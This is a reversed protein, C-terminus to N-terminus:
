QLDPKKKKLHGTAPGHLQQDTPAPQLLRRPPKSGHSRTSGANISIPRDTSGSPLPPTPQSLGPQPNSSSSNSGGSPPPAPSLAATILLCQQQQPAQQLQIPTPPAAVPTPKELHPRRSNISAVLHSAIYCSHSPSLGAPLFPFPHHASKLSFHFPLPRSRTHTNTQQPSSLYLPQLCISVVPPQTRGQNQDFFEVLPPPPQEQLLLLNLKKPNPNKKKKKNYFIGGRSLQFQLSNIPL